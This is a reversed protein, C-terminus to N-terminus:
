ADLNKYNKKFHNRTFAVGLRVFKPDDYTEPFSGM